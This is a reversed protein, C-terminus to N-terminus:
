IGSEAADRRAANIVAKADSALLDVPRASGPLMGNNSTFWLALKWPTKRDGFAELVDQVAKIPKNESFQFAPFVDRERAGRDPHPVAFVQRRKRWNDAMATQSAAQSRNAEGLQEATFYGFENLLRAHRQAVQGAMTMEATSPVLMREAIFDVIEEIHHKRVSAAKETLIRGFLPLTAVLLRSTEDDSAEIVFVRNAHDPNPKHENYPLVTLANGTGPASSAANM